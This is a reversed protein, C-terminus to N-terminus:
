SKLCGGIQTQWRAFCGRFVLLYDDGASSSSVDCIVPGHYRVTEVGDLETRIGIELAGPYYRLVM